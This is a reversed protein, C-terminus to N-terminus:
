LVKWLRQNRKKRLKKQNIQSLIFLQGPDARMRSVHIELTDGYFDATLNKGVTGSVVEKEEPSIVAFTSDDIVKAIWKERIAIKPIQLNELDMRGEKHSLRKLAGVPQASFCLHEKDVVYSLVMRSKLLEIEAEAPSAVDLLAGMEGMARSAKNGKVNVQLLANSTFQPRAWNSALFGVICGFVICVGLFFKHKCLIGLVELLDIEDDASNQVSPQLMANTQSPNQINQDM